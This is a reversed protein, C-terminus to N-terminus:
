FNKLEQNIISNKICNDFILLKLTFSIPNDKINNEIIFLYFKSQLFQILAEINLNEIILLNQIELKNNKIKEIEDEFEKKENLKIQEFKTKQVKKKKM